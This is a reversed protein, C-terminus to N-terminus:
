IGLNKRVNIKKDNNNILKYSSSSSSSSKFQVKPMIFSYSSDIYIIIILVFSLLMKMKYLIM